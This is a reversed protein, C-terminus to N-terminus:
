NHSRSESIKDIEKSDFPCVSFERLERQVPLVEGNPFHTPVLAEEAEPTKDVILEASKRPVVEEM